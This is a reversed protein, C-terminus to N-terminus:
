KLEETTRIGQLVWIANQMKKNLERIDEEQKKLQEKIQEIKDKQADYEDDSMDKFKALKGREITLSLKIAEYAKIYSEFLNIAGKKSLITKVFEESNLASNLIKTIKDIREKDNGNIVETIYSEKASKQIDYIFSCENDLRYALSTGIAYYDADNM